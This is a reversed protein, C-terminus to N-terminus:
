GSPRHVDPVLYGTKKSWFNVQQGMICFTRKWWKLSLSSKSKVSEPDIEGRKELIEDSTLKDDNNEELSSEEILSM